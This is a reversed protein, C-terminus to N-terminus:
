VEDNGVLWNAGVRGLADLVISENHRVAGVRELADLVISENYMVVGM